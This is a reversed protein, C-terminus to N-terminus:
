VPRGEKKILCLRRKWFKALEGSELCQDLLGREQIRGRAEPRHIAKKKAKLREVTFPLHEARSESPKSLSMLLPIEPVVTPFLGSVVAELLESDLTEIVPM